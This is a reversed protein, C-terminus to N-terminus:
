PYPARLHVQAPVREGHTEITYEGSRIFGATVGGAHKVYGAGVAGGLTHGYAGSTTYGVVEGNRWIPENGWLMATPDQLVFFAIRKTIGAAKQRLLAAQGLFPASKDWAVAFGLGAELPTEDPSLDAGWALFGQELRLANIAYHGANAIGLDQGAAWLAAYLAAMQEVPAHLEWGLEGVYSIRAALATALGVHVFRAAGFPFAADAVDAETVRQMLERAQPGMVGLVGYQATTNTLQADAGAPIHRAIWDLDRQTQAAGSVLDFCDPTVRVVTLDSEMGGHENLMATYVIRGPAVDVNNACLLQLISLADGGQLRYKSFSSQDFIAVQRRTAQCEAAVRDFWHPRDWSYHLQPAAAPAVFFLPREWGNKQGFCAGAAALTEHLTSQRIGRGTEFERNPWAMQYHLGLVEAVRSRLFNPNNAWPLFRRVDVSWLDMTPAGESMWEALAKGAGGASAIGLSNFGAAVWCNRLPTEGLIFNNDPTFSEPGNVFKTWETQQLAPILHQGAALPQQYTAWDPQLLQFSFDDPVREMVWPKAEKQFAGLLIAGAEPRFYVMLDPDRGVPLNDHVGTIPASVVYHHEVPWLPIQLGVTLALQRTWMGGCLVVHDAAIVGHETAVGTIRHNHAQLRMVRAGEIIRAGQQRAGEALALAVQTPVVRGDHPLWVGGRIDDVRLHPWLEQVRPPSILEAEVGFVRAMAATRRLQTMRDASRGVILSGCQRWGTPIGTEDELRAYLEATYQNIVTMSTSARLRGILGAAHWTTGGSLKGQELLVIERWGLKALHYAVSCGVVGGGVIVVRAATPLSDTPLTTSM